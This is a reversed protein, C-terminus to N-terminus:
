TTGQGLRHYSPRRRLARPKWKEFFAQFDRYPLRGAAEFQGKRQAYLLKGHTDLVAIAPIGLSIPVGYKEAVDLNKDFRGVDIKVVVYNKSIVGALPPTRMAADLAHCDSCWNAGFILAINKGTQLAMVVADSIEQKINANADYIPRSAAAAVVPSLVLFVVAVTLIKRRMQM